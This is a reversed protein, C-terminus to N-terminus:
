VCTVERVAIQFISKFVLKENKHIKLGNYTTSCCLINDGKKLYQDM